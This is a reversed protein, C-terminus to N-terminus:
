VGATPMVRGIDSQGTNIFNSVGPQSSVQIDAIDGRLMVFPIFVQGWPDIITSRWSAESSLRSYTGPIGRLLCNNSNKVATDATLPSCLNNLYANQNIPDFDATGRSLSTFNSRLQVEGGLIPNKFVYNHDIVPHVVPLQS